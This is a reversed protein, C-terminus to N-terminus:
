EVVDPVDELVGTLTTTKLLPEAPIFLFDDAPRGVRADLVTGIIGLRLVAQAGAHDDEVLHMGVLVEVVDLDKRGTEALLWM